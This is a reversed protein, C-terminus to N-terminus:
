ASSSKKAPLDADSPRIYSPKLLAVAPPQLGAEFRQLALAAVASARVQHSAAGPLRAREGLKEDILNRYLNVGDGVLVIEDTVTQLLREPSVVSEEQLAVPLGNRCDYRCTYVEQKRADLFAHVPYQCFPLNMALAELTSVGFLPIGAATALGKATALGVRLGTFSGPGQVVALMDLQGTTLGAAELVQEVQALLRESHTSRLTLLSEALIVPGECLAVSGSMTSTDIALVKIPKM